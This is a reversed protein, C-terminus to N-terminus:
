FAIGFTILKFDHDKFFPVFDMGFFGQMSGDGLYIRAGYIWNNQNYARQEKVKYSAYDTSYFLKQMSSMYNKAYGELRIVLKGARVQVGLPVRLWATRMKARELNEDHKKLLLSDNSVTFYKGNTIVFKDWAVGAGTIIKVIGKRDLPIHFNFGAEIGVSRWSNYDGGDIFGDPKGYGYFAFHSILQLSARHKKPRHSAVSDSPKAAPKRRPINIRFLHNIDSTESPEEKIQMETKFSNIERMLAFDLRDSYDEVIKGLCKEVKVSDEADMEKVSELISKDVEHKVSDTRKVLERVRNELEDEQAHMTAFLLFFGAFLLLKKM